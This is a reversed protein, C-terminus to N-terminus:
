RPAHRRLVAQFLELQEPDDPNALFVIGPAGVAFSGAEGDPGLPRNVRVPTGGSTSVLFVELDIPSYPGSKTYLLRESGPLLTFAPIHVASDLAVPPSSGDLPVRLLQALAGPPAPLAFRRFFVSQGRPDLQFDVGSDENTLGSLRVASASADVPASFLELRHDVLDDALFVVRTGDASLELRYYYVDGESHLPGNLRLPAAGGLLPVSYLEVQNETDGEATYVVLGTSSVLLTTLDFADYRPLEVLLVEGSGDIAASYLEILGDTGQHAVYVVRQGDPSLAYEEVGTYGPAIPGNLKTPTASGDLPVAFIERPTLDTRYVVRTGDPSLRFERVDVGSTSLRLAPASGDVPRVFLEQPGFASTGQLFLARTEGADLAFRTVGESLAHASSLQVVAGGDLPASYLQGFWSYVYHGSPRAISGALDFSPVPGDLEVAPGPQDLRVGFLQDVYPEDEQARYVLWPGNVLYGNISGALATLTFPLNLVRPARSGDLPVSHLEKVFAQERLFVVNPSALERGDVSGRVHSHVRRPGVFFPDDGSVGAALELADQPRHVPVRMLRRDKVFLAHTGERDLAFRNVFGSSPTADLRVPAQTADLPVSFLGSSAYLVVERGVQFGEQVPGNVLALGPASGDVARSMLFFAFPTTYSQFVVRTGDPSLRYPGDLNGLSTRPASADGPVSALTSGDVFLLRGGAAFRYDETTGVGPTTLPVPAGSGDVLTSFLEYTEDVRQDARYVARTGDPSLVFDLVDASAVPAGSLKVPLGGTSPVSFLERVFADEQGAAYVARTGDPTLAYSLISGFIPLPKSVLVSPSSGDLPASHLEDPSSGNFESGLFAVRTSNAAFEFSSIRALPPTNLRVAPASGDIPASRLEDLNAELRYVVRGSDPTIRFEFLFGDGLPASLKVAPASGDSPASYLEPREDVDRDALFVAWRGDPSLQAASVDGSLIRALPGNLKRYEFHSEQALPLSSLALLVIRM